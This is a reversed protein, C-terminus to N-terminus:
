RAALKRSGVEKMSQRLGEWLTLTILTNRLPFKNNTQEGTSGFEKLNGGPVSSRLYSKKLSYKLLHMASQLRWPTKALTPDELARMRLWPSM